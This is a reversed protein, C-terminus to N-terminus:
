VKCKVSTHRYSLLRFTCKGAPSSGIGHSLAELSLFTIVFPLSGKANLDASCLNPAASTCCSHMSLVSVELLLSNLFISVTAFVAGSCYFPAAGCSGNLIILKFFLELVTASTSLAHKTLDLVFCCSKKICTRVRMTLNLQLHKPLVNRATVRVNDDQTHM